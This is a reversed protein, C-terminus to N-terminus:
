LIVQSMPMTALTQIMSIPSRRRQPAMLPLLGLSTRLYLRTAWRPTLTPSTLYSSKFTNFSIIRATRYRNLASNYCSLGWKVDPDLTGLSAFFASSSLTTHPHSRNQRSRPSQPRRRAFQLPRFLTTAASSPELNGGVLYMGEPALHERTLPSCPNVIHTAAELFRLLPLAACLCAGCTVCSLQHRTPCAVVAPTLPRQSFSGLCVKDNVDYCRLM